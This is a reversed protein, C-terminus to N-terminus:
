IRYYTYKGPVLDLTDVHNLSKDAWASALEEKEVDTKLYPYWQKVGHAIIAKKHEAMLHKKELETNFVGLIESVEGDSDFTYLLKLMV